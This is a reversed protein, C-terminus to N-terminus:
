GVMIDAKQTETILGAKVANTLGKETLKGERYLRKINEFM